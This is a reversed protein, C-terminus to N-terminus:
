ASLYEELDLLTIKGESMQVVQKARRVPLSKKRIHAYLAQTSIGLAAAMLPISRRGNEDPPCFKLLVDQLPGMEKRRRIATESTM